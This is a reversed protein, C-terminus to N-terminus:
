HPAHEDVGNSRAAPAPADAQQAQETIAAILPAAIRYPADGLAALVLNWQQAQLTIAIPATPEIPM